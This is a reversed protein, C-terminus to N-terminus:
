AEKGAYRFKRGDLLIHIKSWYAYRFQESGDPRIWDIRAVPMMGPTTSDHVGVLFDLEVRVEAGDKLDAFIIWGDM